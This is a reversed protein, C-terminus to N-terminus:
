HLWEELGSLYVFGGTELNGSGLSDRRPPLGYEFRRIMGRELSRRIALSFGGLGPTRRRLPRGAAV